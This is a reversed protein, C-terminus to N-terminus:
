NCNKSDSSCVINKSKSKIESDKKVIYRLGISAIYFSKLAKNKTINLENEFINIVDKKAVSDGNFFNRVMSQDLALGNSLKWPKKDGTDYIINKGGSDSIVTIHRNNDASVDYAAVIGRNSKLDINFDDNKDLINISIVKTNDNINWLNRSLQCMYLVEGGSVSGCLHEEYENHLDMYKYSIGLAGEEIIKKLKLDNNLIVESRYASGSYLFLNSDVDYADLLIWGRTNLFLKLYFQEAYMIFNNKDKKRKKRLLSLKNTIMRKLFSSYQHQLLIVLKNSMIFNNDMGYDNIIKRYVEPFYKYKDEKIRQVLDIRLKAASQGLENAINKYWHSDSYPTIMVARGNSLSNLKLYISFAKRFSEIETSSPGNGVYANGNQYNIKGWKPFYNNSTKVESIPTYGGSICWIANRNQLFIERLYDFIEVNTNM